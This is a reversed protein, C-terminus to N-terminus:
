SHVFRQIRHSLQDSLDTGQRGENYDLAVQPKMIPEKKSDTSGNNMVSASHSPRTSIMLVDKKDKRKILKVGDKNQLRYVEGGSGVRNSRLTVILYADDGLLRKTLSISTFFNDATVTRYCRDIGDLLNMVVTQAHELGTMPHQQGTYIMFNWTCGNTAALKYMKVGYKHAKGPIYQKFLLRGPWPIMTEDIPVVAGPTYVSLFRAKLLDMIPKLKFLRDQSSDKNDNNSFYWFKLLLEFRESCLM